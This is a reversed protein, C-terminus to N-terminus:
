RARPSLNLTCCHTAFSLEDSLRIHWKDHNYDAIALVIVLLQAGLLRM